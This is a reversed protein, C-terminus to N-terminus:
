PRSGLRNLTQQRRSIQKGAGHPAACCNKDLITLAATALEEPASDKNVYAAAGEELCRAAYQDEPQGSVVIVPLHPYDRKVERLVDVGNREPMNIDLLLLSTEARALLKLVELGNGAESFRAGPLADALIDILGRRVYANDDAILVHM